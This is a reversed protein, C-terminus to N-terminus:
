ARGSAAGNGAQERALQLTLNHPYWYDNAPNKWVVTGEVDQPEWGAGVLERREAFRNENETM